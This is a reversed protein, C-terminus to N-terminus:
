IYPQRNALIEFGVEIVDVIFQIMTNHFLTAVLCASTEDFKEATIFCEFDCSTWLPM